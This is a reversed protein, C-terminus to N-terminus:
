KSAEFSQCLTDACNKATTDGVNISPATCGKKHNNHICNTADCCIGQLPTKNAGQMKSNMNEM